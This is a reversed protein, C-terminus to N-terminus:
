SVFAEDDLNIKSNKKIIDHINEAEITFCLGILIWSCEFITMFRGLWLIGVPWDIKKRGADIDEQDYNGRVRGDKGFEDIFLLVMLLITFLPIIYKCFIEMWRQPKEGTTHKMLVGLREIGFDYAILKVEALIAIYLGLYISYQDFLDFWYYGSDLCFILSWCFCFLCTIGAFAEKRMYKKVPFMDTLMQIFFDLFGFASDVGLCLMM